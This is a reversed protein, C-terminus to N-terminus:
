CTATNSGASSRAPRAAGVREVRRPLAARRTGRAFATSCSARRSAPAATRSSSATPYSPRRSPGRHTSRAPIRGPPKDIPNPEGRWREPLRADVVVLEGLRAALEDAEITDDDRPRPEFTAAEIEERAAALPGHWRASAAMLRRLRRPRLPAAAVLAARRRGDDRVCRRLRRRRDRGAGGGSRLGDARPCRTGGARGPPASLDPDVDLFARAPCTGQSTSSGAASRAQRAGLPLRRVPLARPVVVVGRAAALDGWAPRVSRASRLSRSYRASNLSSKLGCSSGYKWFRMSPPPSGASSTPQPVPRKSTGYKRAPNSTSPHSTEASM